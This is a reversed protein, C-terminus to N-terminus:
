LNSVQALFMALEVLSSIGGMKYSLAIFSDYQTKSPTPYGSATIANSFKTYSVVPQYFQKSLNNLMIIQGIYLNVCDIGPNYAMLKDLSVGFTTAINYCNDGRVVTYSSQLTTALTRKWLVNRSGLTYVRCYSHTLLVAIIVTIMPIMYRRNTQM